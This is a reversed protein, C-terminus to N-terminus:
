VDCEGISSIEDAGIGDVIVTEDTVNGQLLIQNVCQEFQEDSVTNPDCCEAASPENTIDFNFYKFFSQFNMKTTITQDELWCSDETEISLNTELSVEQSSDLIQADSARDYLQSSNSMRASNREDKMAIRVRATHVLTTSSMNLRSDGQIYKISSFMREINASSAKLHAIRLALQSFVGTSIRDLWWRTARLDTMTYESRFQRYYRFEVSVAAKCRALTVGARLAMRTIAEVCLRIGDETVYDIKTRRDLAYSALLLGFEERGIKRENYYHLFAERAENIFVTSNATGDKDFLNKAYKIIQTVGEGLSCDRTEVSAICETLPRILDTIEKLCVWDLENVIRANESDLKPLIENIMVSKLNLIGDLSTITSYWRVPCPASTIKLQQERLYATWHVNNAIMASLRLAPKVITSICPKEVFRTGILNLLHALCRHQIVHRFEERQIIDQRAKKCSAASDSIISNLSKKPIDKLADALEEVIVDSSHGKLSVDRLDILHRSGNECTALIGLYSRGNKDKWHDFEISLHSHFTSKLKSKFQKELSESLEPVYLASIDQRSPITWKSNLRRFFTRVEDREIGNWSWGAALWAKVFYKTTISGTTEPDEVIVPQDSENSGICKALHGIMRKHSRSMFCKSCSVCRIKDKNQHKVVVFYKKLWEDKRFVVNRDRESLTSNTEDNETNDAFIDPGSVNDRSAPNVNDM